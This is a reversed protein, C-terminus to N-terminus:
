PSLTKFFSHIANRRFVIWLVQEQSYSLTQVISLDLKINKYFFKEMFQCLPIDTTTKLFIWSKLEKVGDCLIILLRIPEIKSVCLVALMSLSFLHMVLQIWPFVLAFCWFNCYLLLQILLQISSIQEFTLDSFVSVFQNYPQINQVITPFLLVVSKNIM